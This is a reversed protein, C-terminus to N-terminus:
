RASRARFDRIRLIGKNLAPADPKHQTLVFFSSAEPFANQLDTPVTLAYRGCM